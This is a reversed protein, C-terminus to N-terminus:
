LFINAKIQTSDYSKKDKNVCWNIISKLWPCVVIKIWKSKMSKQTESSEVSAHGEHTYKSSLLM